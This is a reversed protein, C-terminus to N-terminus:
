GIWSRKKGEQLSNVIRCVGRSQCVRSRGLNKYRPGLPGNVYHYQGVFRWQRLDSLEYFKDGWHGKFWWWGLPANPNSAAPQLTEQMTAISPNTIAKADAGHTISTNFHYALYNLAPDWLPGKDTVDALMGFPLVYPHKGPQAYMAHSGVASYLVPRGERGKGKGKEVAKHAYALGGSHASFFVAKPEGNQFRILSHEWDGVHNGFRIGLVTTGLNYSYFYFWFADVIGNGKDVIVLVAPAPSYGGPKPMEPLLRKRLDQRPSRYNNPLPQAVKRKKGDGLPDFWTELEEESPEDGTDEGYELEGMDPDEEPEPDDYPIPKNYASSLWDPREEVDEKSHMFLDRGRYGENLTHLNDLGVHSVNLSTHNAYATVHTLHDRIDSPWFREGSYLHILPAHDLVYQPVDKLVRPDGDWDGPQLREGDGPIHDWDPFDADAQDDEDGDLLKQQGRSLVRKNWPKVAPDPQWHALGCLGMWRCAQRDLWYTSTAIWQADEYEEESKSTNPDLHQHLATLGFWTLVILVVAIGIRRLNYM